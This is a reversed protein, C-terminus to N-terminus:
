RRWRPDRSREVEGHTGARPSFVGTARGCSNAASRPRRCSTRIRSRRIGLSLLAFLGVTAGKRTVAGSAPGREHEVSIWGRHPPAHAVGSCHRAILTVTSDNQLDYVEGVPRRGNPQPSGTILHRGGMIAVPGSHPPVRHDDRRRGLCRANPRHRPVRCRRIVDVRLVARQQRGIRSVAHPLARESRHAHLRFVRAIRDLAICIGSIASLCRVPVYWPRKRGDVRAASSSDVTQQPFDRTSCRLGPRLHELYEKLQEASLESSEHEPPVLFSDDVAAEEDEDPLVLLQEAAFIPADLRLAIAIADSPRSDIQVLAGGRDLHLEGYYTSNEVRTIQARRLTAGLGQILNKCLDHTLPRPRKVNHMHIVIAEAEAQGIWIPLMRAGNKEQLVVVYTQQSPDMGLRSVVVEIM